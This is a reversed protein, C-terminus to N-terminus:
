RSSNCATKLALLDIFACTAFKLVGKPDCMRKNFLLVNCKGLVYNSTAAVVAATIPPVATVDLEFLSDNSEEYELLSDGHEEGLRHLQIFVLVGTQVPLRWGWGLSSCVSGTGFGEM